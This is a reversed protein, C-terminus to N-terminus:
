IWLISLIQKIISFKCLKFYMRKKYLGILNSWNPLGMILSKTGDIPDIYWTYESGHLQKNFEEGVINHNKYRINIEKRILKETDLDFKTVPDIQFDKKTKFKNDTKNYNKNNKNLKVHLKKIFSVVDTIKLTMVRKASIGGDVIISQGTIYSASDSALFMVAGTLEKLEGWRGLITLDSRRKKKIKNNYSKKNM